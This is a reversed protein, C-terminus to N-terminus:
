CQSLPELFATAPGLPSTYKQIGDLLRHQHRVKQLQLIQLFVLVLFM